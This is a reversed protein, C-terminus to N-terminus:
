AMTAVNGALSAVPRADAGIGLISGAHIGSASALTVSSPSAASTVTTNVVEEAGMLNKYAAKGDPPTGPTGSPEVYVKLGAPGSIRGCALPQSQSGSGTKENARIVAQAGKLAPGPNAVKLADTAVPIKLTGFTTEEAVYVHESRSLAM